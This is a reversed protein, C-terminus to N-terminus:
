WLFLPNVWQVHHNEMTIISLQNTTCYGDQHLSLWHSPHCGMYVRWYILMSGPLYPFSSMGYIFHIIIWEHKFGGVLCTRRVGYFQWLCAVLFHFIKHPQFMSMICCTHGRRKVCFWPANLFDGVESESYLGHGCPYKELRPISSFIPYRQSLKLCMKKGTM